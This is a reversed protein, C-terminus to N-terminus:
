GGKRRKTGEMKNEQDGSEQKQKQSLCVAVAVQISGCFYTLILSKEMLDDPKIQCSFKPALEKILL